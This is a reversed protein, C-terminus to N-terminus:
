PFVKKTKIHTISQVSLIFKVLFKVMKTPCIHERASWAFINKSIYSFYVFGISYHSIFKLNKYRLLRYYNTKQSSFLYCFHAVDILLVLPFYFLTTMKTAFSCINIEINTIRHLSYVPIFIIEVGEKSDQCDDIGTFSFQSVLFAFFKTLECAYISQISCYHLSSRHM